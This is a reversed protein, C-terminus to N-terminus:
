ENEKERQEDIMTQVCDDCIGIAECDDWHEYEKWAKDSASAIAGHLEAKETLVMLKAAFHEDKDQEAVWAASEQVYRFMASSLTVLDPVSLELIVQPEGTSEDYTMDFIM